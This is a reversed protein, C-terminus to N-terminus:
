QKRRYWWLWLGFSLLLIPILILFGLGIILSQTQSLELQSGITTKVPITILEDDEALWNIIAMGLELNSGNGLYTNSLFDGDGIVAIRQQKEDDSNEIIRTLLYATNLPGATDSGVDFTYPQAINGSRPNIESWVNSATTLLPIYEWDHKNPNLELAVAKPFVTVSSTAQGIPHNAYDTILVFHPDNIGLQQSNPDILTGPVFEVGLQEALSSLYQHNDPEALWLVNGGDAIYRKIIDIEGQLWPTEPSAIVVATANTPIDSNEVLNLPIFKFGKQKLQEGWVSLNYNAPDLPSREGHGEIFVLWQQQQRSVAMLANTLSQESLDFVHQQLEGRSVIMEGQQQVKLQRVLDPSFDPNIYEVQLKANHTQYRSLLSELASRYENNPSIFAQITITQDLQKLFDLTSSSLSHRNNATWDLRINTKLSLQALLVVVAIVLLYFIVNQLKLQRQIKSNINM